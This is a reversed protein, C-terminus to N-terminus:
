TFAKLLADSGTMLDREVWYSRFTPMSKLRKPLRIQVGLKRVNAITQLQGVASPFVQLSCARKRGM